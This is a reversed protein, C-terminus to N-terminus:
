PNGRRPTGDTKTRSFREKLRKKGLKNSRGVGIEMSSSRQTGDLDDKSRKSKKKAPGEENENLTNGGMEAIAEQEGSEFLSNFQADKHSRKM